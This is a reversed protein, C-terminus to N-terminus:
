VPGTKNIAEQIASMAEEKSGYERIDNISMDDNLIRIGWVPLGEDTMRIIEPGSIPDLNKKKRFWGFM